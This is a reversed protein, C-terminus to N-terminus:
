VVVYLTENHDQRKEQSVRLFTDSTPLQMIVFLISSSNSVDIQSNRFHATVEPVVSASIRPGPPAARRSTDTANDRKYKGPTIFTGISM